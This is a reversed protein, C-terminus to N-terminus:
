AAPALLMTSNGISRTASLAVLPLPLPPPPSSLYSLLTLPTSLTLSHSLPSTSHLLLLPRCTSRYPLLLRPTLQLSRHTSHMLATLNDSQRMHRRGSGSGFGFFRQRLIPCRSCSCPGSRRREEGRRRRVGAGGRECGLTSKLREAM